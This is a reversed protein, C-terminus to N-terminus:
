DCHQTIYAKILNVDAKMVQVRKPLSEIGEFQPPREPQRGLLGPLQRRVAEVGAEGLSRHPAAVDVPQRLAELPEALAAAEQLRQPLGPLAQASRVDIAVAM